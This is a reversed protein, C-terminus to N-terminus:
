QVGNKMYEMKAQAKAYQDHAFTLKDLQQNELHEDCGTKWKNLEYNLGRRKNKSFEM